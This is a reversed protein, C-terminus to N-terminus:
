MRTYVDDGGAGRMPSTFTPQPPTYIGDEELLEKEIEEREKLHMGVAHLLNDMLDTDVTEPGGGALMMEYADIVARNENLSSLQHMLKSNAQCSDCDKSTEGYIGHGIRAFRWLRIAVVLGGVNSEDFLLELTLSVAVVVFDLMRGKDYFFRVPKAVLLMLSESLLLCLMVVSIWFAIREARDYYDKGVDDDNCVGYGTSTSNIQHQCSEVVDEYDDVQSNLYQLEFSLGLIVCVVDVIVFTSMALMVMPDYFFDYIKDDCSKHVTVPAM